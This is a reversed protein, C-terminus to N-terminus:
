EPWLGGRRLANDLAAGSPCVGEIRISGNVETAPVCFLKEGGLKAITEQGKRVSMALEDTHEAAVQEAMKITAAGGPWPLALLITAQCVVRHQVNRRM